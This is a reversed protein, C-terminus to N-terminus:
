EASSTSAKNWFSMCGYVPFWPGGHSHAKEWYVIEGDIIQNIVIFFSDADDADEIAPSINFLDNLCADFLIIGCPLPRAPNKMGSFLVTPVTGQTKPKPIVAGYKNCIMEM